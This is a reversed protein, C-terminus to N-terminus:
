RADGGFFRERALARGANEMMQLVVIGFDEVMARDVERMQEVTV